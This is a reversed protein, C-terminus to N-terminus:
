EIRMAEMPALRAAKYSPYISALAALLFGTFISLALGLLLMGLPLTEFVLFGFSVTMSLTGLVMGLVAGLFGGMSGLLAAEMLFVLLISGDLAGLCKFTAIERYRETVSMLMANAIGVVCVVLSLLLLWTMREGMGMFGGGVGVLLPEVETWQAAEREQKALAEWEQAGTEGTGELGAFWESGSRNDLLPWVVPLSIEQPLVNLRVAIAQRLTASGLLRTLELKTLEMKAQESLVLAAEADLDYGASRIAEGFAGNADSLAVLLAREGRIERLNAIAERQGQRIAELAKRVEPWEKLLAKLEALDTPAKINLMLALQEEYNTLAEESRLYDFAALGERDRVLLRRRGYDMDGFFRLYDGATMAHKGLWETRAEDLGGFRALEGFAAGQESREALQLLLAEASAPASLRSTWTAPFRFVALEEVARGIISQKILSETLINMLFAIAVTIVIMTVSSRFFRYRLGNLTIDLTRVFGLRPQNCIDITKM